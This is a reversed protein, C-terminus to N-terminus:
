KKKLHFGQSYVAIVINRDMLRKKVKHEFYYGLDSLMTGSKDPNGRIAKFLAEKIDSESMSEPYEFDISLNTNIHIRKSM